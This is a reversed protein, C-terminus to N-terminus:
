AADQARGHETESLPLAKDERKSPDREWFSVSINRWWSIAMTYTRPRFPNCLFSSKTPIQMPLDYILRESEAMTLTVIDEPALM